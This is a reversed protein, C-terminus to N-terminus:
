RKDPNYLSLRTGVVIAQDLWERFEVEHTICRIKNFVDCHIFKGESFSVIVVGRRLSM